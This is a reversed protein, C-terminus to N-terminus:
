PYLWSAKWAGKDTRTYLFRTHVRDKSAIWFEIKDAKLRYGKWHKPCPIDETNSYLEEMDKLANDLTNKKDFPQSQQSVLAGIKRKKSRTSFYSQTENDPTMEIKGTVRIQKRTSKWYFCISANPNEKINKGKQSTEHTHFKFGNEDINKILVMRNQPLMDKGCTALNAAEPDNPENDKAEELWNLVLSIPDEGYLAIVENNSQLAKSM